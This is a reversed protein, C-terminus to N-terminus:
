QLIVLVEDIAETRVKWNSTTDLLKSKIENSIIMTSNSIALDTFTGYM